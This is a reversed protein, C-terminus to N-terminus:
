REKETVRNAMAVLVKREGTFPRRGHATLINDLMLIDYQQWAIAHEAASYAQRITDLVEPEIASGDGYYANRPLHQEGLESLLAEAMSRGLSSIHFLHAQNFWVQEKTVPHTTVAQTIQWTRLRGEDNYKWHIGAERCYREVESRDDTQFVRQWPLDLHSGYNRVYMVQRRIFSERIHPDIRNFITRSDAITTEGGSEAPKLCYFWLTRPWSSAYSMENHLPIYQDAPYETSTYIHEGIRSRPTSAYDYELLELTLSKVFRGFEDATRVNFGRFLLAGHKRLLDEILSQNATAWGALDVEIKGPEMVLAPGAPDLLRTNVLSELSPLAERRQSSKLSEGIVRKTGRLSM